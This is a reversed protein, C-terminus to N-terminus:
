LQEKWAELSGRYLARELRTGDPRLFSAGGRATLEAILPAIQFGYHRMSDAPYLGPWSYSSVVWRRHVPPPSLAAWAPDAPGFIVQDLDGAPIGEISRVVPPNDDPLNPDVSLDVIVAHEPLEGIQDHAIAPISPNSRRTADVLTDTISLRARLYDDNATLNRGATVVEIGAFSTPAVRTRELNGLKTAAEVAHKGVAGAGLITVRIPEHTSYLNPRNRELVGFGVDLGNWAVAKMNEVLRTGFDDVVLDLAVADIGREKLARTRQRHTPFHLMSLLTTGPALLSLLDDSPRLVLVVGARCASSRSVFRVGPAVERYDSERYGMREGYGRELLIPLGLDAVEAVFAPLFERVEGPENEIRPLGLSLPEHPAM